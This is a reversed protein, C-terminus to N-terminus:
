SHPLVIGCSYTPVKLSFPLLLQVGTSLNEFEDAKRSHVERSSSFIIISYFISIRKKTNFSSEYAVYSVYSMLFKIYVM